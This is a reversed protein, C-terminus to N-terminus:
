GNQISNLEKECKDRFVIIDDAREAGSHRKLYTECRELTKKYREEQRLYISNDAWDISAKVILYRAEESRESDPYDKLMNELSQIASSYNRTNYYLKGSEFAKEEMKKRLEDIYRNCEEINPSEPYSNAFLQFADIAKASETQDLKYRPSLRYYSIASLYLAEEKRASSTYTDAFSKFYHSSLIYRGSLYHSHAFRYAIEEAQSKGRYAPIIMEYLTIAKSYEENEFYENAVEYMKEADGSTRIREFDSKCSCFFLIILSVFISRPAM